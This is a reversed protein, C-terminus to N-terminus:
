RYMTRIDPIRNLPIGISPLIDMIMQHSYSIADASAPTKFDNPNPNAGVVFLIVYGLIDKNLNTKRKKKKLYELQFDVYLKKAEAEQTETITPKDWGYYDHRIQWKICYYSSYGARQLLSIIINMPPQPIVKNLVNYRLPLCNQMCLLDFKNWMEDQPYLDGSRCLYRDIFIIFDKINIETSNIQPVVKTGDSYESIHRITDQNFGCQCKIKGSEDSISDSTIEIGCGPCTVKSVVQDGHACIQIIKLKNILKIYKQILEIRRELKSEDIVTSCGSKSYGKYENSMLPTYENLIPIAYHKYTEWISIGTNKRLYDELEIRKRYIEKTDIPAIKPNDLKKSLELLQGPISDLNRLTYVFKTRVIKHITILNLDTTYTLRVTDPEPISLCESTLSPKTFDFYNECVHINVRGNDITTGLDSYTRSNPNWEAGIVSEFM